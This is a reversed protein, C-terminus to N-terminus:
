EAGLVKFIMGTFADIFKDLSYTKKFYWRKLAWMDGMSVITGTVLATDAAGFSGDKYGRHIISAFLAHMESNIEIV